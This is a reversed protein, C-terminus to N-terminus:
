RSIKDDSKNYSDAKNGKLYKKKQFNSDTEAHWGCSLRHDIEEFNFESIFKKSAKKKQNEM